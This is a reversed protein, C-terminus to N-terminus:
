HIAFKWKKRSGYAEELQLLQHLGNWLITEPVEPIAM